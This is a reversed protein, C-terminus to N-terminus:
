TLRQSVPKESKLSFLAPSSAPPIAEVLAMVTALVMRQFFSTM